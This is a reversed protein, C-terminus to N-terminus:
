EPSTCWQQECPVGDNDGDMQTGPCNARFFKAEECSTMQSCRTRGDCRFQVPAQPEPTASGESPGFEQPEPTTTVAPLTSPQSVRKTSVAAPVSAQPGPTTSPAAPASQQAATQREVEQYTYCAFAGLAVVLLAVFLTVTARSPRYGAPDRVPRRQIHIAQQKGDRGPGVEFSLWEGITPRSGDRPFESIHVFLEGGGDTPSIFGFGRDEHWTRLTGKRRM